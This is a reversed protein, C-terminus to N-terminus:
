RSSALGAVRGMWGALAAAIEDLVEDPDRGSRKLVAFSHDAGAVVHLTARRGLRRHLARVRRIEALADRTGQVFLLPVGTDALHQGRGIDPGGPRHLPFGLFAIGRVRALPSAAHAQSTIRGGMSKGGALLPLGRALRAARAAARRVTHELVAPRDPRKRGAETFPFQFRLTAIRREELRDAVAALFRHRMGAGAGHALLYLAAAGRPRQYLASVPGHDTEISLERLM